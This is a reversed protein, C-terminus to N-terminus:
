KKDAKRFHYISRGIVVLALSISCIAGAITPDMDFSQAFCMGVLTGVKDAVVVYAGGILGIYLSKLDTRQSKKLPQKKM